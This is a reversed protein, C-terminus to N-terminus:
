LTMNISSQNTQPNPHDPFQGSCGWSCTSQTESSVDSLPRAPGGDRAQRKTCCASPGFGSTGRNSIGVSTFCSHRPTEKGTGGNSTNGQCAPQPVAPLCPLCPLCHRCPRCPRCPMCPLCPLCQLGPLCPLRPLHAPLCTPLYALCAPCAPCPPGPRGGTRRSRCWVLSCRTARAM